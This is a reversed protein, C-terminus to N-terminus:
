KMSSRLQRQFEDIQARQQAIIQLAEELTMSKVIGALVVL